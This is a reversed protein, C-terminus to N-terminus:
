ASELPASSPVTVRRQHCAANSVGECGEACSQLPEASRGPPAEPQGHARPLIRASPALEGGARAYGRLPPRARM